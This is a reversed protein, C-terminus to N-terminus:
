QRLHNAAVIKISRKTLHYFSIHFILVYKFKAFVCLLDFYMRTYLYYQQFVSEHLDFRFVSRVRNEGSFTNHDDHYYSFIERKHFTVFNSFHFSIGTTGQLAVAEEKSPCSLTYAHSSSNRM